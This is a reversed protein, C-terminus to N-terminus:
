ISPSANLFRYRAFLQLPKLSGVSSYMLTSRQNNQLKGDIGIVFLCTKGHLAHCGANLEHIHCFVLPLIGSCSSPVWFHECPMVESGAGVSISPQPLMSPPQGGTPSWVWHVGCVGWLGGPGAVPFWLVRTRHWCCRQAGFEWKM